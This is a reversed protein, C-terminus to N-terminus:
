ANTSWWFLYAMLLGGATLALIVLLKVVKDIVWDAFRSGMTMWFGIKILDSIKM